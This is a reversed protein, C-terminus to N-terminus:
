QRNRNSDIGSIFQVGRILWYQPDLEWWATSCKAALPFKHHTNHWAEGGVLLFMWFNNTSKDPATTDHLRYGWKHCVINTLGGAYAKGLTPVLYLYVVAYWGFISMVLAAFVINIAWYYNSVFVQLPMAILDPVYRYSSTVNKLFLKPYFQSKISAFYPSHPDKNTDVSRHHSRHIAVWGIGPGSVGLCSILTGSIYFWRPCEFSRHTLYRHYITSGVLAYVVYAVVTVVWQAPTSFFIAVVVAISALIQYTLFATKNFKFWKKM